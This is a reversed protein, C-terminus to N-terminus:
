HFASNEADITVHVAAGNQGLVTCSIPEAFGGEEFHAALVDLPLGDSHV